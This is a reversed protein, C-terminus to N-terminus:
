PRLLSFVYAPNLALRPARYDGLIGCLVRAPAPRARLRRLGYEFLRGSSLFGQILLCVHEKDAFAERRAREYGVPVADRRGLAREAAEAALEAGRLARYVGEGTFPDLFGAADGVLLYGPGAVHRVRRALPAAGRIATTREAGRLAAAVRPLAALQREFFAATPEGTPKADLSVVLGVTVLGEGVPGLGCYAHEGVHMEAFPGLPSGLRYRAVLGLRKPWRVPVDLGLSRVVASRLGDAGVVLRARLAEEREDGRARVGVVRGDEVLVGLVHARERIRAGAARAHDLLVADLFPRAIGLATRPGDYAVVFTEDGHHMEIGPPSALPRERVLELAGLRELVDAVGPSLYEACAKERPFAMKDLVLVDRGGAALLAATAAGAPGAGVVIVEADPASM